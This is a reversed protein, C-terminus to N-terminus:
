PLPLPRPPVAVSQVISSTTQGHMLFKDLVAEFRDIAPAYVRM